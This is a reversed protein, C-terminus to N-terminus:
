PRITESYAQNNSENREHLTHTADAVVMFRLSHVDAFSVNRFFHASQGQALGARSYRGLEVFGTGNKSVKLVMVFTGVAKGDGVNEVDWDVRAHAASPTVNTFQAAVNKVTIDPTGGMFSKMMVKTNNGESTEAIQKDADVEAKFYYTGGQQFDFSRSWAEGGNAANTNSHFDYLPTYPDTSKTRYSLRTIFGGSTTGGFNKFQLNVRVRLPVTTVHIQEVTLVTVRLDPKASPDALLIPPLLIVALPLFSINNIRKM